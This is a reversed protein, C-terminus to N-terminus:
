APRSPPRDARPSPDSPELAGGGGIQPLEAAAATLANVSEQLRALRENTDALHELARVYRHGLYLGAVLVIGWFTCAAIFIPWFM